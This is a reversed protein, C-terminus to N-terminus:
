PHDVENTAVDKLFFRHFLLKEIYILLPNSFASFRRKPGFFRFMDNEVLFIFSFSTRSFRSKRALSARPFPTERSSPTEKSLIHLLPWPAGRTTSAALTSISAKFFTRFVPRRQSMMNEQRFHVHRRRRKWRRGTKRVKKWADKEVRAEDVVHRAGHGSKCM